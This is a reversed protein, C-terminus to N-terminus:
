HSWTIGFLSGDTWLNWTVEDKKIIRAHRKHNRWVGLSYFASMGAAAIVDSLYHRREDLRAFGIAGASLLAPTGVYWPYNLALTTAVSFALTSHDSPFSRSETQDPRHRHTAYKLILGTGGSLILSEFMQKATDLSKNEPDGPALLGLTMFTAPTALYTVLGIKSIWHSASGLHPPTASNGFPEDDNKYAILSAGTTAGLLGVGTLSFSQWLDNSLTKVPERFLNQASALLPCLILVLTLQNVKM